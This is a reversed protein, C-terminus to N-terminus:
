FPANIPKFDKSVNGTLDMDGPHLAMVPSGPALSFRRLDAWVVNPSTTLEFFYIKGTLDMVTRYETNYTGLGEYPAGFPVSVNRMISLIGAVGERESDTKPLVALFYSARQFRDIPNVNGGLPTERSPNSFDRAGLLKLQKAYDPDNTMVRYQRGHHIVCKGNIYEVIASDGSADEIALHLTAQHGRYEIMVFQVKDLLALAEPVTAANDLIYQGWLGAQIGPKSTDRPGFDTESFYLVHAGLGRENFGDATGVGYMTTVMSGYKSTWKLPNDPVVVQGGLRGGDRVMGRPFVTIVPLTSEPWDMTRGVLVAPCNENWLVRTCARAALPGFLAGFIAALLVPFIQLKSLLRM